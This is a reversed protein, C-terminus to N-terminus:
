PNLSIADGDSLNLFGATIISDNENLGTLVESMKKLQIGTPINKRIAKNNRNLYVYAGQTDHHIATNPIMLRRIKKGQIKIQCLRGPMLSSNQTQWQVEIQGQQSQLDIAPYIRTIPAQLSQEDCQINVRDNLSLSPMIRASIGAQIKLQQTNILTLLHTHLPVIDGENVLREAIRGNFAAKIHRYSYQIQLREVEAQAIDLLTQAKSIEDESSLKQQELNQLRKADISAQKLQAKAKNLEAKILRADLSILIDGQKVRDGPYVHIKEIRGAMQNSIQTQRVPQINASSTYHQRIDQWEPSATQVTHVSKKRPKEAARDSCATVALMLLIMLFPRLSHLSNSRTFFDNM